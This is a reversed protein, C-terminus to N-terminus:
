VLVWMGLGLECVLDLHRAACVVGKCGGEGSGFGVLDGGQVEYCVADGLLALEGGAGHEGM